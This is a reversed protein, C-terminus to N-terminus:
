SVHRRGKTRMRTSVKLKGDLISNLYKKANLLMADVGGAGKLVIRCSTWVKDQYTGNEDQEGLLRCLNSATPFRMMYLTKTGVAASLELVSTCVAISCDIESALAAVGDMDNTLDLDPFEILRDGLRNRLWALEDESIGYQLNVFYADRDFLPAWQEVDFYHADRHYGKHGGRWSLGIVPAGQSKERIRSRFDARQVDDPRLVAGPPSQCKGEINILDADYLNILRAWCDVNEGAAVAADSVLERMAVSVSLSRKDERARKLRAFNRQAPYLTINSFSRALLKTLRPDCTLSVASATAFCRAFISTFRIEDGIGAQAIALVTKGEFSNDLSESVPYPMVVPNALYAERLMRRAKDKEGALLAVLMFRRLLRAQNTEQFGLAIKGRKVALLGLAQSMLAMSTTLDQKQEYCFALDAVPNPNTRDMVIADRLWTMAEDAFGSAALLNGIRAHFVSDRRTLPLAAQLFEIAGKTDSMQAMVGALRYINSENKRDSEYNQALVARSEALRGADFYADALHNLVRQDQPAVSHLRNLRDISTSTMPPRMYLKALGSILRPNRDFELAQEARAIAAEVYGDSAQMRAAEVFLIIYESYTPNLECARELLRCALVYNKVKMYFKSAVLRLAESDPNKELASLVLEEAQAIEGVSLLVGIERQLLSTENPRVSNALRVQLLAEEIKGQLALTYSLEYRVPASETVALYNYAMEVAGEYQYSLRLANLYIAVINEDLKWDADCREIYNIIGKWYGIKQLKKLFIYRGRGKRPAVRIYDDATSLTNELNKELLSKEFTNERLKRDEIRMISLYKTLAGSYEANEELSVADRLADVAKKIQGISALAMGYQFKLGASNAYTLLPEVLAITKYPMGMENFARAAIEVLQSEKEWQIDCRSLYKPISPWDALEILKECVKLRNSAQKSGFTALAAGITQTKLSGISTSPVAALLYSFVNM